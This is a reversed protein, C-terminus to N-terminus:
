ETLTGIRYFRREAAQPDTWDLEVGTAQLLGSTNTWNVGPSDTTEVVYWRGPVTRWRLVVGGSDLSPEPGSFVPEVSLIGLVSESDLPATGALWEHQNSSGDGDPDDGAGSVGDLNEPDLGQAIKWADPIGDGALNLANGGLHTIEFTGSLGAINVDTPSSVRIRANTTVDLPVTWSYLNTGNVNAVGNSVNVYSGGGDDSYDINVAAGAGLSTWRVNVLM